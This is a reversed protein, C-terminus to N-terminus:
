SIIADPRMAVKSLPPSPKKNELLVFVCVCVCVFVSLCVSVCVCVCVCLCLAVQPCQPLFVLLVCQINLEGCVLLMSCLVHYRWWRVASRVGTQRCCVFVGGEPPLRAVRGKDREASSGSAAHEDAAARVELLKEAFLYVFPNM